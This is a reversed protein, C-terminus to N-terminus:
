PPPGGGQLIAAVFGPRLYFGCRASAPRAARPTTATACTPPTAGRPASRCRRRRPPRHDRRRARAPLLRARVARLRRAARAGRRRRRGSACPPWAGSASRARAPPVELAVFLVRALKARVYSTEWSEAAIAIPDIQCVATSECRCWRRRRRARDQARRGARRLRPRARRRDRRGARARPGTGVLGQHAGPGVPVPLGLADALEGLEVGVLARAHALLAELDADLDGQRDM